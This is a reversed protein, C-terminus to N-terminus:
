KRTLTDYIREVIFGPGEVKVTLTKGSVKIPLIRQSGMMQQPAEHVSLNNLGYTEKLYRLVDEPKQEPAITYYKVEPEKTAM